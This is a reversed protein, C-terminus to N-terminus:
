ASLSKGETKNFYYKVGWIGLLGLLGFVVAVTIAMHMFANQGNPYWDISSANGSILYPGWGGYNSWYNGGTTTNYWINGSGYDEAFPASEAAFSNGYIVNGTCSPLLTVCSHVIKQFQNQVMVCSSCGAMHVGYSFGTINNDQIFVQDMSHIAVGSMYHPVPTLEPVFADIPNSTGGAINPNIEIEHPNVQTNMRNMDLHMSNNLISLRPSHYAWIGSARFYGKVLDIENTSIICDSANFFSCGQNCFSFQNKSATFYGSATVKVAVNCFMASTNKISCNDSEHIWIGCDSFSFASDIVRCRPSFALLVANSVNKFDGDTLTIGESDVIIVQSYDHCNLMSSHNQRLYLIPHGGLENMRIEHEFYLQPQEDSRAFEIGGSTMINKIISCTTTQSLYIASETSNSLTNEMIQSSSSERLGIGYFSDSVACNRVVCSTSNELLIGCGSLAVSSNIVRCDDSNEIFIGASDNSTSCNVIRGNSINNLIVIASQPYISFYYDLLLNDHFGDGTFSSNRLIFHYSTNEFVLAPSVGSLYMGEILYPDEETGNGSSSWTEFDSKSSIVITDESSVRPKSFEVLHSDGELSSRIRMQVQLVPVPVLLLVVFFLGRKVM